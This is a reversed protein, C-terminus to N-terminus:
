WRSVGKGAVRCPLCVTGEPARAPIVRPTHCSPCARTAPPRRKVSVAPAVLLLVGLVVSVSLLLGLEALADTQGQPVRVKKAARRVQAQAKGLCDPCRVLLEDVQLRAATASSPDIRPDLPTVMLHAEKPCRQTERRVTKVVECRGAARAMLVTHLEQARM